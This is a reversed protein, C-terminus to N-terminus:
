REQKDRDNHHDYVCLSQTATSAVFVNNETKRQDLHRVSRIQHRRWLSNYEVNLDLVERHSGSYSYQHLLNLEYWGRYLGKEHTWTEQARSSLDPLVRGAITSSSGAAPVASVPTLVPPVAYLIRPPVTLAATQPSMGPLVHYTMDVCVLETVTDIDIRLRYIEFMESSSLVKNMGKNNDM